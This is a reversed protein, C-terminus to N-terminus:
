NLHISLIGQAGNRRAEVADKPTDVNALVRLKRKEDVWSM